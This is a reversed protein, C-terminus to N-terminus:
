LIIWSPILMELVKWGGPASGVCLQSPVWSSEEAELVTKYTTNEIDLSMKGNWLQQPDQLVWALEDKAKQLEEQLKNHRGWAGRLACGGHQDHYKCLHCRRPPCSVDQRKRDETEDNGGRFSFIRGIRLM